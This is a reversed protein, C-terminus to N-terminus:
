DKTLAHADTHCALCDPFKKHMDVGHPEGHCTTCEPVQKHQSKHCYVCLLAHHKSQNADLMKFEQGHCSGCYASPIDRDYKVLTPMHPQHCRLCDQYAMERSHPQHCELCPKFTAHKPHCEGCALAAHKSPYGQMEEGQQKHCSLCVARIEPGGATIDMQLPHHPHHCGACDAVKFHDKDGPDHCTACLPIAKTGAPPHEVHCDLCTVATLHRAGNDQVDKIEAQHCKVCDSNQIVAPGASGSEAAAAPLGLFFVSFLILVKCTIKKNKEM